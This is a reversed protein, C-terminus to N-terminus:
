DGVTFAMYGVVETTHATEQNRSQEEEIKVEVGNADRNQWRVAATDKGDTTQMDALFMPAELFTGSFSIPYFQDTVEDATTAVEFSLLGNVTGLGPQWAIYYITETSHEQDAREQQQMRFDFGATSINHLRDTVTDTGNISGVAAVVVPM